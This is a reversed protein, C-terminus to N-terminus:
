RLQLSNANVGPSNQKGQSLVNSNQACMSPPGDCLGIRKNIRSKEGGRKGWPITPLLQPYWPERGWTPLDGSVSLLSLPSCSETPAPMYTGALCGQAASEGWEGNWSARPVWPCGWGLMGTQWARSHGTQVPHRISLGLLATILSGPGSGSSSRLHPLPDPSTSSEPIAGEPGLPGPRSSSM